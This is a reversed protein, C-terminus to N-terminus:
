NDIKGHLAISEIDKLVPYDDEDKINKALEPHLKEICDICMWGADSNGLPNTRHLMKDNITCECNKCKM